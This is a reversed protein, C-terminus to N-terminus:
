AADKGGIRAASVAEGHHKPKFGFARALAQAAVAAGRVGGGAESHRAGGPDGGGAGARTLSAAKAVMVM